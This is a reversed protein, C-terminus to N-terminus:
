VHSFESWKIGCHVCRMPNSWLHSCGKPDPASLVAYYARCAVALCEEQTPPLSSGDAHAANAALLFGDWATEAEALAKSDDRSDTMADLRWEHLRAM